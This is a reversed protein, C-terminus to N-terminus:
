ESSLSVQWSIQGKSVDLAFLSNDQSRIYAIGDQACFSSDVTTGISITKSPVAQGEIQASIDFVYVNGSEDVVILSNGALVPSVVIPNGADFQWVEEGTADDIAYLKGDLCGAYVTGNGVVPSSWFWGGAPKNQPFRWTPEDGGINVAYLYHDFSGLFISGGDVVPSSSFGATSEFSWNLAAGTEASLSYIHGDFSSVYLTDGVVVPSTWLKVPLPNSTEAPWQWKLDGYTTDLAYVRGDASSVFITGDAIVPRGVIAGISGTRPYVWREAGGDTTLAAIQGGYTGVYVLDDNVVPTTYIATSAFPYNWQENHSSSNVAVVKGDRTGAYIIGNEITTGAWGTTVAASGGICSVLLLPLLAIVVLVFIKSQKMRCSLYLTTAAKPFRIADSYGRPRSGPAEPSDM